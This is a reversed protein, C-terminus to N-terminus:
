GTEALGQPGLGKHSPKGNDGAEKHGQWLVQPVRARVWLRPMFSGALPLPNSLLHPHGQGILIPFHRLPWNSSAWTHINVPCKNQFVWDQFTWFGDNYKLMGYQKKLFQFLSNGPPRTTLIQLKWQLPQLEIGPTPPFQSGMLFFFISISNWMFNIVKVMKLFVIWHSWLTTCGNGSNWFMKDCVM